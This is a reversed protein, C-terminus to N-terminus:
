ECSAAKVRLLNRGGKIKHTDIAEPTDTNVVKDVKNGSAWAGADGAVAVGADDYTIEKCACSLCDENGSVSDILALTDELRKRVAHL